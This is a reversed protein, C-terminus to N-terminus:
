GFLSWLLLHTPLYILVPFGVMLLGLYALPSMLKQQKNGFGFVWNVNLAPDTLWFCLPLVVWALATQAIWAGPEYGLRAVMWVLLPPLIVHFLSLARLYLPRRADFMYDALGSIRKGTLLQGFYSLNWLIEPLLIGVAVMSALFPSEFWLAPVTTLLAIDSFWLFNSRSYKTAYVAVIIAVFLTYALKLWLPIM